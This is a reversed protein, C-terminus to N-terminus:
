DEDGPDSDTHHGRDKWDTEHLYRIFGGLMKRLEEGAVLRADVDAPSLLKKARARKLRGMVEAVSGKSHTLYNAFARDSGQEFGEEMNALISDNARTIQGHLDRNRRMSPRELLADIAGCCDEAKSYIPLDELKKAM